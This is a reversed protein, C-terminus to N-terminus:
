GRSCTMSTSSRYDNAVGGALRGVAEMKQAQRLQAELEARLAEGMNLAAASLARRSFMSLVGVLQGCALLPFGAYSVLGERAAWAGDGIGPDEALDNTVHPMRTEAIARTEPELAPASAGAHEAIAEACRQLVAPLPVSQTLAVGVQATLEAIRM